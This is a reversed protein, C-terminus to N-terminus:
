KFYNIADIILLLCGTGFLLCFLILLVLWSNRNWYQTKRGLWDALRRQKREFYNGFRVALGFREVSERVRKRFLKM